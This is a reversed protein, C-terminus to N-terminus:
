ATISVKYANAEHGARARTVTGIRGEGIDVPRGVVMQLRKGVVQGTIASSLPLPKGTAGELASRLVQAREAANEERTDRKQYGRFRPSPTQAAEISSALDSASFHRGEFLDLLLLVLERMALTEEEEAEEGAFLAGFDVPAPKCRFKTHADGLAQHDCALRAAQELPAGILDWWTKFRTKSPVRGTATARIQPNWLLLGYLAQLIRGRHQLTWAIPDLHRFARNEPDPRSVELRCVLSRSAMDGKPGINNGTFAQVTTSPVTASRSAGLVRDSFETATLAREISPCSIRTGREINDWVLTAVGEGLYAFLAKRREESSPSWAAAPSRRGSVAVTLMNMVTTKGGGRQGATIFFAPREPLLVREIITLALALLVVRGAFDTAVDCLWEDMLFRLAGVAQADSMPRPNIRALLNPEIRFVVERARDLGTGALLEGKRTVLPATVVARVVPLSSSKLPLYAQLFALPLTVPRESKGGAVRRYEIYREVLLGLSIPDLTTILPEEPSPLRGETEGDADAGGESLEHLGWPARTRVEVVVGDANRMPPEQDPLAGLVEDLSRLVPIREDDLMPAELQVRRECTQSAAGARIAAADREAKRDIARRARESRIRAKMPGIKVGSRERAMEFLTAEEDPELDADNELQAYTSVVANPEAALIAAMLMSADLKLEYTMRGHAFSHIWLGGREHRMVMAKCRGYSVGELPDALTEGVFRDPRALLEAVAVTGIAPDDFTLEVQPMLIGQHRRRVSHQAAAFSMGRVETLRETLAKDATAQIRVAEPALVARAESKLRSLRAEEVLTLPPCALRTDLAIGPTWNPRRAARDQLLPEALVPAGEFVLREPAWVARDIISRDLLQGTAGLLFWGLHNLWCRAHLDKLFREIDSGDRVLLYIHEGGSERGVADGTRLDSLGSSTSVRRIRAAEAIEPVMNVLAGWVSEHSSLITDVEEPMGKRDFDLLAFAPEGAAFGIHERTRSIPPEMAVSSALLRAPVVTVEDPLDPRLRGLAIAQNAPMDHMVRALDAPDALRLRGARGETMICASGDSVLRGEADLSIRKTLPGNSKSLLTLEIGGAPADSSATVETAPASSEADSNPSDDSLNRTDAEIRSM